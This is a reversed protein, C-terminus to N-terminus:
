SSLSTLISLPVKLKWDYMEQVIAHSIEVLSGMSKERYIVVDYHRFM